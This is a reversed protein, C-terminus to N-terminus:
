SMSEVRNSCLSSFVLLVTGLDCTFCVKLMKMIGESSFDTDGGPFAADSSDKQKSKPPPPPPPAKVPLQQANFAARALEGSLHCFTLVFFLAPIPPSFIHSCLILGFFCEFFLPARPMALM